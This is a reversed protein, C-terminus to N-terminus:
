RCSKSKEPSSMEEISSLNSDDNHNLIRQTENEINKISEQINVKGIIDKLYSSGNAAKHDSNNYPGVEINFEDLSNFKNFNRDSTCDRGNALDLSKLVISAPPKSFFKLPNTKFKKCFEVKKAKRPTPSRKKYITEGKKRATEIEQM